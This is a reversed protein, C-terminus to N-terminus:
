IYVQLKTKILSDCRPCYNLQRTCRCDNCCGHQCPLFIEKVVNAFCVCCLCRDDGSFIDEQTESEEYFYKLIHVKTIVRLDLNNSCTLERCAHVIDQQDFSLDQTERSAPLNAIEENSLLDDGHSGEPQNRSPETSHQRVFKCNPFNQAHKSMPDDSVQWNRLQGDCFSCQVADSYGLYFLGALAMREPTQNLHRPWNCFTSLRERYTQPIGPTNRVARSLRLDGESLSFGRGRESSPHRSGSPCMSEAGETHTSGNSPSRPRRTLHRCRSTRPLLYRTNTCKQGFSNSRFSELDKSNDHKANEACHSTYDPRGPQSLIDETTSSIQFQPNNESLTPLRLTQFLMARNEDIRSAPTSCNPMNPLDPANMTELSITPLNPIGMPINSSRHECHSPILGNTWDCHVFGCFYCKCTTGCGTFFFGSQALLLSSVTESSPFDRFTALRNWEYRMDSSMYRNSEEM